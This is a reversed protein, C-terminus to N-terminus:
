TTPTQAKKEYNREARIHEFDRFKNEVRLHTDDVIKIKTITAM